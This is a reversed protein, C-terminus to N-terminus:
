LKSVDVVDASFMSCAEEFTYDNSIGWNLTIRDYTVSNNKVSHPYSTNFITPKNLTYSWDYELENEIVDIGNIKTPTFIYDSSNLSKYVTTVTEECNFLPINLACNRLSDVHQRIMAGPSLKLIHYNAKLCPFQERIKSLYEDDEVKSGSYFRNDSTSYKEINRRALNKLYEYDLNLNLEKIYNDSTM